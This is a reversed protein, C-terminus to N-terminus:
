VEPWNLVPLGALVDDITPAALNGSQVQELLAIAHAWVADRWAVFAQAEAAWLANTSAVYSAAHIGSTYQREGAKAEIFRDIAAKYAAILEAPTPPPVPIDAADVIQWALGNPVAGAAQEPTVGPAPTIVTQRGEASTYLVVQTM